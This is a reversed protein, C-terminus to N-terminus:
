AEDIDRVPRRARRLAAALTLAAVVALAPVLVPAAALSYASAVLSVTFAAYAAIVLLGPGRSLGAHRWALVLIALSLGVYWAAVLETQATRPGLGLVVGPILLGVVVNITNSNLATSLTAHGRGRAALYVAAM